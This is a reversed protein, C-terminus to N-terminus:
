NCGKGEIILEGNKESYDLSLARCIIEVKELMPLDILNTTITCNKLEERDFVVNIGYVQQLTRFVESVPADEFEVSEIRDISQPIVMPKAAITKVM